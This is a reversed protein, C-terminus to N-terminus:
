QSDIFFIPLLITCLCESIYNVRIIQCLISLGVIIHVTVNHLVDAYFHIQFQNVSKHVDFADTIV